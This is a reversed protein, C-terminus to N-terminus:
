LPDVKEFSSFSIIYAQRYASATSPSSATRFNKTKSGSRTRSSMLMGILSPNWAAVSIRVISDLRAPVLRDLIM